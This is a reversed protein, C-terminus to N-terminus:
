ARAADGGVLEVLTIEPPAGVRMPPGWYGTGRSVYIQTEGHQELGQVHPQDLRVFYGWPFIQGGHTHGSLQLGVGMAAAQVVQKPQHALLVVERAPDRGELARKLDPGHGRFSGAKWDDVGALDFSAEGEGISVRENRLVRVGLRTLEEIWEDAGSYYEHNGTVFFVGHKAKLRGLPAVHERLAIVTGDVLDGTIAVLDPSLANVQDVIGELWERGITPGVHIDTLQVIRFGSMAGPLKRLRVQVPKVAVMGLASALGVGALGVGLVGAAGALVRSLFVRRAEDFPRHQLATVARAGLRVVEMSVLVFFLLVALGVWGYAVAAVVRGVPRPARASVLLGVPVSLAFGVLAWGLVRRWPQALEASRVLRFWLYYHIGGVVLSFVLLFVAFSLLSRQM